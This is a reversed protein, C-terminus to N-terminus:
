VEAWAATSARSSRGSGGVAKKVAWFRIVMATSRGALQGAMGAASAAAAVATNRIFERRNMTM